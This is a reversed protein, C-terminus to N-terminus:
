GYVGTKMDVLYIWTTTWYRWMGVSPPLGDVNTYGNDIMVRLRETNVDQVFGTIVQSQDRYGGFAAVRKMNKEITQNVNILIDNSYFNYLSEITGDAYKNLEVFDGKELLEGDSKCISERRKATYNVYAGLEYGYVQYSIEGNEDCVETIKDIM